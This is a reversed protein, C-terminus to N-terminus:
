DDAGESSTCSTGADSNAESEEDENELVGPDCDDQMYALVREPTGVYVADNNVEAPPEEGYMAQVQLEGDKHMFINYEYMAGYQAHYVNFLSTTFGQTELHVICDVVLRGFSSPTEANNGSALWKMLTNGLMAYNGDEEVYLSASVRDDKYSTFHVFASTPNSM